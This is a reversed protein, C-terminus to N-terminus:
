ERRHFTGATTEGDGGVQKTVRMGLHDASNVSSIEADLFVQLIKTDGGFGGACNPFSLGLLFVVLNLGLSAWFLLMLVLDGAEWGQRWRSRM